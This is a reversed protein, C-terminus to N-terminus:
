ALCLAQELAEPMLGQMHFSAGHMHLRYPLRAINCHQWISSLRIFSANNHAVRRPFKLTMQFGWKDMEVGNIWKSILHAPDRM